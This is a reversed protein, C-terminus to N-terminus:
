RLTCAFPNELTRSRLRQTPSCVAAATNQIFQFSGISKLKFRSSSTAPGNETSVTEISKLGAILLLAIAAVFETKGRGKARGLLARRILMRGNVHVLLQDLFQRQDATLVFPEGFRDGEGHM